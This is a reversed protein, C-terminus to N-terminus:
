KMGAKHQESDSRHRLTRDNRLRDFREEALENALDRHVKDYLAKKVRMDSRKHARAREISRIHIAM